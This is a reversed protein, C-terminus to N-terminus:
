SCESGGARLARDICGPARARDHRGAALGRRQRVPVDHFHAAAAPGARLAGACRRHRPHAAACGLAPNAGACLGGDSLRGAAAPRQNRNRSGCGGLGGPHLRHAGACDAPVRAGRSRGSAGAAVAAESPAPRQHGDLGCDGDGDCRRSLAREGVMALYPQLELASGAGARDHPVAPHPDPHRASHQLGRHPPSRGAQSVVGRHGRSDRRAHITRERWAAM